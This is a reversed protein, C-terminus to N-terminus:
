KSLFDLIENKKRVSIPVSLNNVLQLEGNIISIPKNINQSNFAFSRHCRLFHKPLDSLVEKLPKSSIFTKESRTFFRTYMGSAELYIVDDLALIIEENHSKIFYKNPSSSSLNQKLTDLRNKPSAIKKKKKELRHVTDVFEDPKIPKLLYDFVALKIAQIAYQNYATIFVIEFNCEGPFLDVIELGTHGPMEIDLFLVDIDEKLSLIEEIGKLLRDAEGVVTIKLDNEKILFKLLIRPHEEDDIIYAKM